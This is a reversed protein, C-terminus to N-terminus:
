SVESFSHFAVTGRPLSRSGHGDARMEPVVLSAKRQVLFGHSNKAFVRFHGGPRELHKRPPLRLAVRVGHWEPILPAADDLASEPFQGDLVVIPSLLQPLRARKAKDETLVLPGFDPHSEPARRALLRDRTWPAGARRRRVNVGDRLRWPKAQVLQATEVGAGDPHAETRM